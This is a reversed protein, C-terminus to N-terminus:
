APKVLLYIILAFALAFRYYAFWQLSYKDLFKLLYKIAFFGVIGSIFFGIFLMIWEHAEVGIKSLDWMKKLTALAFVPLGILFAFEAAERRKLNVAIGAIITIGSRSTGPVLAFIQALGIALTKQWTLQALSQKPQHYKEAVILLIGVAVLMVIIVYLSRLSSEIFDDLFYGVVGAPIAGLCILALIKPSSKYFKVLDNFFYILIALFTGAHLAVDFALDSTLHMNFIDHLIVLHGSSSIPLFETIGQM